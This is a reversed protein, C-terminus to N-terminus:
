LYNSPNSARGSEDRVEFHLHPGTSIGTSGVRGILQYLRVRQGVRVSISSLHGYRTYLVRTGSKRKIVHRVEVMNGYGGQWGAFTVVGERSTLVPSGHPKALDLGSHMRRVQSVPHRRRGFSSTQRYRLDLFPLHLGTPKFALPLFLRTGPKFNFNPDKLDPLPYGNAQLIEREYAAGLAKGRAYGQSIVRLSEPQQVEYLTGKQSPIQLTTGDSFISIDLDNSSRITFGDIGSRKSLSWLDDRGRVKYSAVVPNSLKRIQDFVPTSPSYTLLLSTNWPAAVSAAESTSQSLYFIPFLCTAGIVIQLIYPVKRV